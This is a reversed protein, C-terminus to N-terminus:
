APSAVAADPADVPDTRHRRRLVVVVLIVQALIPLVASGPRRTPGSMSSLLSIDWLAHVLM